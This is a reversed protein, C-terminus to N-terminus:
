CLTLLKIQSCFMKEQCLETRHVINKCFFIWNESRKKHKLKEEKAYLEETGSFFKM